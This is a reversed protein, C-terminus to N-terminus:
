GRQNITPVSRIRQYIASLSVAGDMDNNDIHTSVSKIRQYVTSLDVACSTQNNDIRISIHELLKILLQQEDM